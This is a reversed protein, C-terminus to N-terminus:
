RDRTVRGDGSIPIAPGLFQPDRGLTADAFAKVRGVTERLVHWAADRYPRRDAAVGVAEMGARDALYLARPLHFAQTVVVVRRVGFVRVARAMSDYTNFGAHDLFIDAPPVGRAELWARMANVEDYDARGHDGSLLLKAGAGARYLELATELRDALMHSPTGGRWVAAGLVLIAEARPRPGAAEEASVVRMRGNLWVWLSVGLPVALVAALLV